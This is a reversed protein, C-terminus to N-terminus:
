RREHLLFEITKHTVRRFQQFHQTLLCLLIVRCSLIDNLHLVGVVGHEHRLLGDM